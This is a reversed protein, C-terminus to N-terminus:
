YYKVFETLLKWDYTQLAKYYLYSEKRAIKQSNIQTIVFSYDKDSFLQLVSKGNIELHFEVFESLSIPNLASDNVFITVTKPLYYIGDVSKKWIENVEIKLIRIKNQAIYNAFKDGGLNYFIEQNVILYNETQKLLENSNLSKPDETNKNNEIVYIINKDPVVPLNIASNFELAGIFDTKLNQSEGGSTIPKGEFQVINYSFLKKNLYTAFNISYIGDANTNIKIKSFLEKLDNYDVFGYSVDEARENKNLFTFGMTSTTIGTKTKQWKEYIFFIEQETFKTDSS